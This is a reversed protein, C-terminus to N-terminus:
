TLFADLAATDLPLDTLRTAQGNHIEFVLASRQDLARGDRQGSVRYVAVAMHDNAFVDQLDARFTGGTEQALRLYLEFIAERGKHDGSLINDGPMVQVADQAILEALTQMDGANFAEFGRRVLTQNPHEAM